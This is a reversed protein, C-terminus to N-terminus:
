FAAAAGRADRELRQVGLLYYAGASNTDAGAWLAPRAPVEHVRQAHATATCAAAAALAMALIKKM